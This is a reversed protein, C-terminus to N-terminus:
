AAVEIQKQQKRRRPKAADEVIDQSVYGALAEAMPVMGANFSLSLWKLFLLKGWQTELVEGCATIAEVIPWADLPQRDILNHCFRCLPLLNETEDGGGVRKPVLHHMERADADCCWCWLERTTKM